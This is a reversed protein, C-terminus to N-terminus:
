KEKEGTMESMKGTQGRSLSNASVLIIEELQSRVPRRGLARLKGLPPHAQMTLVVIYLPGERKSPKTRNAGRLKKSFTMGSFDSLSTQTTWVTNMVQVGNRRGSRSGKRSGKPYISIRNSIEIDCYNFSARSLCWLSFM